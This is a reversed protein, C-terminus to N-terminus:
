PNDRQWTDFRPAPPDMFERLQEARSVCDPRLYEKVSIATVEPTPERLAGSVTMGLPLNNEPDMMITTVECPHLQLNAQVHSMQRNDHDARRGYLM